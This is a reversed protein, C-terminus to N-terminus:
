PARKVIDAREHFLLFVKGELHGPFGAVFVDKGAEHFKLALQQWILDGHDTVLCGNSKIVLDICYELSNSFERHDNRLAEYKLATYCGRMIKDSTDISRLHNRTAMHEKVWAPNLAVIREGINRSTVPCLWYDQCTYPIVKDNSACMNKPRLTKNM